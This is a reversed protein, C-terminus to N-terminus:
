ESNTIEKTIFEVFKKEEQGGPKLHLDDLSENNKISAHAVPRMDFFKCKTLEVIKKFDIYLQPLAKKVDAREINWPGFHLCYPASSQILEYLPKYNKELSIKNSSFNNTGLSMVVTKPSVRQILTKLRKITKLAKDPPEILRHGCIKEKFEGEGLWHQAGSGCVSYIFVDEKDFHSILMKYLPDKAHMLSSDGIILIPARSAMSIQPPNVKQPPVPEPKNTDSSSSDKSKEVIRTDKKDVACSFLHGFLIIFFLNVIM